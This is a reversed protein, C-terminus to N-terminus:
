ITISLSSRHRYLVLSMIVVLSSTSFFLGTMPSTICLYIETSLLLLLLVVLLRRHRPRRVCALIVIGFAVMAVGLSCIYHVMRYPQDKGCLCASALFGAISETSEEAHLSMQIRAITTSSVETLMPISLMPCLHYMRAKLIAPHINRVIRRATEPVDRGAHVSDVREEHVLSQLAFGGISDDCLPSLSGDPGGPVFADVDTIHYLGYHSQPVFDVVLSEFSRHVYPRVYEFLYLPLSHGPYQSELVPPTLGVTPFALTCFVRFAEVRSEPLTFAVAFLFQVFTSRLDVFRHLVESQDYSVLPKAAHLNINNHLDVVWHNTPESIPDTRIFDNMHHSCISCPLVSPLVVRLAVPISDLSHLWLWCAHSWRWMTIGPTHVRM